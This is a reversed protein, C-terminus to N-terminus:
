SPAVSSKRSKRSSPTASDKLETWGLPFGMLWEVWTPNLPGGVAQPLVEGQRGGTRELRSKGPYRFDRAMPSPWLRVAVALTTGAGYVGADPTPWLGYETESIHPVLPRRQFATGSRTTGARPWTVSSSGMGRPLLGPVNEVLVYSPRVARICRLFEPWLWRADGQAEGRGAFSVPQCPFGGAVLDVPEVTSWDVDHIDGYRTVDPWHKALVRQCFPEYEVQWRGTWGARELGLDIGGIGAFLSGFTPRGNM